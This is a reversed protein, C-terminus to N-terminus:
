KAERPVEDGGAQPLPAVVGAWNAWAVVQAMGSAFSYRPRYGLLTEARTCDVVAVARFFEEQAATPLLVAGHSPAPSPRVGRSVVRARLRSVARAPLLARVVSKAAAVTPLALLRRRVRQEDRLLAWLQILNGRQKRRLRRASAIDDVSMAVTRGGGLLRDYAGYFDRWTVVDGGSVLMREGAARPELAARLLATVVDDVYVANSIGGGGNILVVRGSKMSNIPLMTWSPAGPGYVAAPQIVVVAVGLRKGESLAVEEGKRKTYGYADSKPARSRAQENLVADPVTGYVMMTSIHIVRRVGCEHAARVISRVADINVRSQEQRPGKGYTCNIVYDCNQMALRLVQADGVDGRVVEVPYRAVGALRIFNRVLVRIKATSNQALAEVIRSGLFGAGGLILVRKGAFKEWDVDGRFREWPLELAQRNERCADFLRISELAQSPPVPTESGTHISDAFAELQRRDAAHIDFDTANEGAIVSAVPMSPSTLRIPSHPFVGVEIEGKEGRIICTNRLDRTWSLEVVGAVGNNLELELWCNAEVGGRADDWYGVRKFPGLWALLLDLAHSGKDILVGGGHERLFPSLSLPSWANAVGERLDFSRVRGLWGAGLVGQVFAVAPYHRRILGVSLRRGARQAVDILHKGEDLSVALPKEVFVHLGRELLDAAIRVHLHNPTAVIAADAYRELGVTSPATYLDPGLSRALRNLREVDPDVLATVQMAPAGQLVPLHLKESVAGCGVIALRVPMRRGKQTETLPSKDATLKEATVFSLSPVSM